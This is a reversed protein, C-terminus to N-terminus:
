LKGDLAERIKQPCRIPKGSEGSLFFLTTEAQCRKTGECLIEYSFKIRAGSLEVVRTVITFSDDYKLPKLYRISYDSVPLLINEEELEKYVIGLSRLTEVRGVELWAAYAGYYAFGMQDTEGYRVRLNWEYTYMLVLKKTPNEVNNPYWQTFTLDEYSLGTSTYRFSRWLAFYFLGFSREARHQM